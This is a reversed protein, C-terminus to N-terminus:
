KSWDALILDYDCESPEAPERPRYPVPEGDVDVRFIDTGRHDYYPCRNLRKAKAAKYFRGSGNGGCPANAECIFDTGEGNYDFANWCYRCYQNM